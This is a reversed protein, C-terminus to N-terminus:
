KRKQENKFCEILDKKNFPFYFLEMRECEEKCDGCLEPSKACMVINKNFKLNVIVKERKSLNM